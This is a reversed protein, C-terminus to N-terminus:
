EAWAHVPRGFVPVVDQFFTEVRKKAAVADGENGASGAADAAADGQFQCLDIEIEEDIVGGVGFGRPLGGVIAECEGSLGTM